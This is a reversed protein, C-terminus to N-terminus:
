FLQGNTWSHEQHEPLFRTVIKVLAWSTSLSVKARSSRPIIHVAIVFQAVIDKMAASCGNESVGKNTGRAQLKFLSAYQGNLALLSEDATLSM